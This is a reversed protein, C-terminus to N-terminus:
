RISPAVEAIGHGVGEVDDVWAIKPDDPLRPIDILIPAGAVQAHHSEAYAKAMQAAITDAPDALGVRHATGESEGVAAVAGVPGFMVHGAGTMSFSPPNAHTEYAVIPGNM